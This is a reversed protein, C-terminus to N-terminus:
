YLNALKMDVKAQAKDFFYDGFVSFKFKYDKVSQQRENSITSPISISRTITSQCGARPALKALGMNPKGQVIGRKKAAEANAETRTTSSVHMPSKIKSATKPANLQQMVNAQKQISASATHLRGATTMSTSESATKPQGVRQLSTRLSPIGTKQQVSSVNNTKASLMVAGKPQLARSPTVLKNQLTVTSTMESNEKGKPYDIKDDSTKKMLPNPARSSDVSGHLEKNGSQDKKTVACTVQTKVVVVTTEPKKPLNSTSNKELIKVYDNLNSVQEPLM